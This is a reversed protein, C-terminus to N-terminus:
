VHKVYVLTKIANVNQLAHITVIIDGFDMRVTSVTDQTTTAHIVACHQVPFTALHDGSAPFVITAHM